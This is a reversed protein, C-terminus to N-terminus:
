GSSNGSLAVREGRLRSEEAAFAMLHGGVSEELSTLPVSMEGRRLRDRVRGIFDAMLADDGGGHFGESNLTLQSTRVDNM